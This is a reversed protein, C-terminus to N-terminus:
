RTLVRRVADLTTEPSDNFCLPTGPRLAIITNVVREFVPTYDHSARLGSGIEIVDYRQDTLAERVAREAGAPDDPVLCPIVAFGERRLVAEAAAIRSHLTDASQDPWASFDVVTPDIGVQLVRQSDM